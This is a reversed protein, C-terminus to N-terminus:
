MQKVHNIKLTGRGAKSKTIGETSRTRWNRRGKLNQQMHESQKKESKQGAAKIKSLVSGAITM